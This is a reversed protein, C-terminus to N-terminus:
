DDLHTIHPEEDGFAVSAITANSGFLARFADRYQDGEDSLEWGEKSGDPLFTYFLTGNTLAAIPGIVLRQWQDPLSDRFAVIDPLNENAFGPGLAVVVAEHKIVGM